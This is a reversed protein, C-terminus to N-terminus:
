LLRRYGKTRSPLCRAALPLSLPRSGVSRRHLTRDVVRTRHALRGVSCRHRLHLHGTCSSGRYLIAPRSSRPLELFFLLCYNRSRGLDVSRGAISGLFLGCAGGCSLTALSALRNRYSGGTDALIAEFGGLAAWGAISLGALDGIVLPTCLAIAARLGRFWDMQRNVAMVRAGLTSGPQNFTNM